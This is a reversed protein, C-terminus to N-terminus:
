VKSHHLLHKGERPYSSESLAVKTICPFLQLLEHEQALDDTRTQIHAYIFKKLTEPHLKNLFAIKEKYDLDTLKREENTFHFGIKVLKDSEELFLKNVLKCNLIDKGPLYSLTHLLIEKPVNM